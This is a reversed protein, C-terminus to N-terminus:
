QTATFLVWGNSVAGHHHALDLEWLQGAVACDTAASPMRPCLGHIKPPYIIVPVPFPGRALVTAMPQVREELNPRERLKLRQSITHPAQRAVRRGENSKAYPILPAVGGGLPQVAVKEGGHSNRYCGYSASCSVGGRYRMSKLSTANPKRRTPPLGGLWAVWTREVM